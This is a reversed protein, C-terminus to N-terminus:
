LHGIAWSDKNKELTETMTLNENSTQYMWAELQPREPIHVTTLSRVTNENNFDIASGAQAQISDLTSAANTNAYAGALSFAVAVSPIDISVLTTQERRPKSEHVVNSYNSDINANAARCHRGVAADSAESPYINEVWPVSSQVYEDHSLYNAHQYTTTFDYPSIAFDEELAHVTAASCPLAEFASRLLPRVEEGNTADYNFNDHLTIPSAFDQSCATIVSSKNNFLIEFSSDTANTDIILGSKGEENDSPQRNNPSTGTMIM